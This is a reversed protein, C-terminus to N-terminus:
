AMRQDPAKERDLDQNSHVVHLGSQASCSHELGMCLHRSKGKVKEECIQLSYESAM